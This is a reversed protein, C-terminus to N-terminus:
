KSRNQLQQMGVSKLAEYDIGLMCGAKAKM